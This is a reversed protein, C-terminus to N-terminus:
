ERGDGRGHSQLRAAAGLHRDLQEALGHGEDARGLQGEADGVRAIGRDRRGDEGGGSGLELLLRGGDIEAQPAGAPLREGILIMMM